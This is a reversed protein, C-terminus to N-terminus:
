TVLTTQTTYRNCIEADVPGAAAHPELGPMEHSDPPQDLFPSSSSPLLSSPLPPSPAVSPSLSPPSVSLLPPVQMMDQVITWM